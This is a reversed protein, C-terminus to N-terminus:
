SRRHNAPGPPRKADAGTTDGTAQLAEGASAAYAKDFEPGFITNFTEREEGRYDAHVTRYEEWIGEYRNSFLGGRKGKREFSQEISEPSLSGLLRKVGEMVGNLLAVQHTMVSVFIEHLDRLQEDSGASGASGALLVKGLENHNQASAVLNTAKIKPEKRLVEAEFARYGDRLSVFCKLFTSMADRLQRAFGLMSEPTDLPPAGPALQRQLEEMASIAATATTFEGLSHAPVGYYKTVRQFDVEQGLAAHELLLRKLYTTRADDQLRPLHEYIIRYVSNWAGRYAEIYPVLQRIFVDEAGAAIPARRQELVAVGAATGIDLLSLARSPPLASAAVERLALRILIPGIQLEPFATIEVAEDRALKQGRYTTGNTSGHDRVWIRNGAVEITAHFQSVYPRDLHLDSLQNRGIRVPTREFALEFSQQSQTDRIEATLAMSM